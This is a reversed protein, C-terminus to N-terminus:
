QNRKIRFYKLSSLLNRTAREFTEDGNVTCYDKLWSEMQNVTKSKSVISYTDEQLYNYASMYGALWSMYYATGTEDDKVFSKCSLNGLGM